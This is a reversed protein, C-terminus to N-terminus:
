TAPASPRWSGPSSRPRSLMERRSSAWGRLPRPAMSVTARAVARRRSLPKAGVDVMRVAGDPDVHSLDTM